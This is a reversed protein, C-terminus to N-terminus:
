KEHHRLMIESQLKIVTRANFGNLLFNRGLEGYFDSLEGYVRRNDSMLRDHLQIAMIHAENSIIRM